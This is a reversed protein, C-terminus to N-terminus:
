NLHIHAPLPDPDQGVVPYTALISIADGFVFYVHGHLMTADGTSNLIAYVPLNPGWMLTYPRAGGFSFRLFADVWRLLFHGLITGIFRVMNTELLPFNDAAYLQNAAM